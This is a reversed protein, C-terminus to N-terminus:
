SSISKINVNCGKTAFYDTMFKTFKETPNSWQYKEIMDSFKKEIGDQLDPNLAIKFFTWGFKDYPESLSYGNIIGVLTEMHSMAMKIALKDNIYNKTSIEFTTSM